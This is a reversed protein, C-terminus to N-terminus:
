DLGFEFELTEGRMWSSIDEESVETMLHPSNTPSFTESKPVQRLLSSLSPPFPPTFLIVSSLLAPTPLLFCSPCCTKFQADKILLLCNNKSPKLRVGQCVYM